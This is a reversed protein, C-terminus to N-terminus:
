PNMGEFPIKDISKPKKPKKLEYNYNKNFSKKEM